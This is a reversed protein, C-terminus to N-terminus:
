HLMGGGELNRGLLAVFLYNQPSIKTNNELERYPPLVGRQSGTILATMKCIQALIEEMLRVRSISVLFESTWRGEEKEEGFKAVYIYKRCQYFFEGSNAYLAFDEVRCISANARAINIKKTLGSPVTAKSPKRIM